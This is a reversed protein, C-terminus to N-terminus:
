RPSFPRSQIRGPRVRRHLSSPESRGRATTPQTPEACGNRAASDSQHEMVQLLGPDVAQSVVFFPQGDMANVWYDATASLCLRQRAVYHKPLTKPPETISAFTDTSMSCRPKRPLRPWGIGRLARRELFVRAGPRGSAEGQQTAHASRAGSRRRAVKGVRWARSLAPGRDIPDSGAGHLGAASLDDELGYFGAPLSFYKNARSLLGASWCRRCAGAFRRWSTPRCGPRFATRGRGATRPQGGDTGADGHGWSGDARRLRDRIAPEEHEGSDARRLRKKPPQAFGARRRRRGCRTEAEPRAAPRGRALSAGAVLLSEIEAVVGATLVAPGARHGAACLLGERGTRSLAEGCAERQDLHGRLGPHHRM